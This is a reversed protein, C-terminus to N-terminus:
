LYEAGVAATLGGQKSGQAPQKLDLTTRESPLAARDFWSRGLELSLEDIEPMVRRELTVETNGLVQPERRHHTPYGAHSSVFRNGSGQKRSIRRTERITEGAAQRSPLLAPHREGQQAERGRRDPQEIFGHRVEIRCAQGQDGAYDLPMQLPATDHDGSGM